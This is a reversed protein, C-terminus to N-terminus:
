VMHAEEEDVVFYNLTYYGDDCWAVDYKMPFGHLVLFFSFFVKEVDAWM